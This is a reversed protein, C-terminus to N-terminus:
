RHAYVRTRGNREFALVDYPQTPGNMGPASSPMGPITLGLFGAKEALMKRILDAPVHGEVVYRGVIGTHCSELSAPVGMTRKISEIDDVDHAAVDFGNAQLHKVWEKCCGCTASKYVTIKPRAPALAEALLPPAALVSAAGALSARLWERRSFM